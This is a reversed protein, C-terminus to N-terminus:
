DYVVEFQVDDLWVQGTGELSIGFAISDGNEPVHLTIARREWDTTGEATSFIVGPQRRDFYSVQYKSGGVRVWLAAWGEVEEAKVYASMRIRQGRYDHVGDTKFVQMLTGTDTPTPAKSKVTGSARGSRAMARDIGAEYDCSHNAAVFWGSPLEGVCPIQSPRASSSPQPQVSPMGPMAGAISQSMGGLLALLIVAQLAGAALAAAGSLLRSFQRRLENLMRSRPLRPSITAFNMQPSSRVARLDALLSHRIYRQLAEHDTLRARCRPCDALHQDMTERQADTLTQHVYAVLQDKSLHTSM